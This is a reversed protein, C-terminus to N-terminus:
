KVDNIAKILDEFGGAYKKHLGAVAAQWEKVDDVESFEVGKTKLDAVAKEEESKALNKYRAVGETVAEQLINRDEPSLKNWVIESILIVSPDIQHNTFTFSKCVENFRNNYYGKIPQEAGDVVGTQLAAYLEGFNIPTPSAGFAEVLDKYLQGQQVRIKLGKMDGVKTVKAKTFFFHRPNVVVYGLGKIKMNEKSLGAIFDKGIDGEFVKWAHDVNRFIFPLSFVGARKFGADALYGFQTRGMDIAGMQLGQIVEKHEGLQMSPFVKIEIRGKSKEAAIGAIDKATLTISDQPPNIEAYRLTVPKEQAGSKASEESKGGTFGATACGLLLLFVMTKKMCNM